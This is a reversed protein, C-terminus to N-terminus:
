EPQAPRRRIVALMRGVSGRERRYSHFVTDHTATCLAAVHIQEPALGADILQERNAQWLDLHFRDGSAPRFWRDVAGAAHTAAFAERVEPGVEYCCVGISPGIAAILDSAPTGCARALAGATEQVIRQATGRWGAHVAAVGRGDRHAILVPVCDAVKVAVAVGPRLTLLADAEPLAASVAPTEEDVVLARCGHVQRLHWLRDAPLGSYTAIDDWSPATARGLGPVPRVTFFHFAAPALAGCTLIRGWPAQEWRFTGGPEPLNIITGSEPGPLQM